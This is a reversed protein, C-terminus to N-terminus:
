LSSLYFIYLYLDFLNKRFRLPNSAPLTADIALFNFPERTCEKYIKVFGKYDIDAFHNRAINQLDRKQNIKMILYHTLNIKCRKSCFFSISYYFCTFYKTKQM